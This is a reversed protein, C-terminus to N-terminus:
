EVGATSRRWLLQRHGGMARLGSLREARGRIEVEIYGVPGEGELASLRTGRMGISRRVELGHGAAAGPRPLDVVRALYVVESHGTHSFGAREYLKRVHPWQEPVGYVGCPVPLDGEACQRAARWEELRAICSAMVDRGRCHRRGLPPQRGPGRALLRAVRSPRPRLLERRTPAQDGYRLLHAAAVVRRQQEAVLTVRQTVWPDTIAEAPDRELSALLSAVSTGMGPVVASAHANVLDALQDRDARQFPRIEFLPM